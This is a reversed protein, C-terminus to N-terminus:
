QSSRELPPIAPNRLSMFQLDYYRGDIHLEEPEAGSTVFGLSEYLSVAETNPLYVYLYIRLCGAAFAHDIAQEVLRRGVSRRRFDPATQVAYLITKHRGSPNKTPWRIGATAILRGESFAGFVRSPADFTLETRFFEMPRHLEEDLTTGMGVPSAAVVERRLQRLKEANDATLAGYSYDSM